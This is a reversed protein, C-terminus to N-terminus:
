MQKPKAGKKYWINMHGNQKGFELIWEKNKPFETPKISETVYQPFFPQRFNSIKDLNNLGVKMGNIKRLLKCYAKIRGHGKCDNPNSKCM